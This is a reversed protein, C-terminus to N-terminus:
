IFGHSRVNLIGSLNTQRVCRPVHGMELYGSACVILIGPNTRMEPQKCYIVESYSAERVRVGVGVFIRFSVFCSLEYAECGAAAAALSGFVDGELVVGGDGNGRSGRACMGRDADRGM